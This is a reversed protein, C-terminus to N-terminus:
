YRNEYSLTGKKGTIFDTVEGTKFYELNMNFIQKFSRFAEKVTIEDDSNPLKINEDGIKLKDITKEISLIYLKCLFLFDWYREKSKKGSTSRYGVMNKTEDIYIYEKIGNLDLHAEESYSGYLEKARPHIEDLVKIYKTAKGKKNIEEESKELIGYSWSIQEMILRFLPMSEIFHGYRLLILCGKFTSNLRSMAISYYTAGAKEVEGIKKLIENTLNILLIVNDMVIDSREIEDTVSLKGVLESTNVFNYDGEVYSLIAAQIQRKLKVSANTPLSYPIGQYTYPILRFSDNEHFYEQDGEDSETENKYLESDEKM